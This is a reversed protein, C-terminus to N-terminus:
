NGMTDVSTMRRIELEEYRKKFLLMNAGFVFTLIFGPLLLVYWVFFPQKLAIAALGTIILLIGLVIFIKATTLVFRRAKGFGGLCGLLGGFCGIVSGGIGGIIGAQKAPWWSHSAVKNTFNSDAIGNIANKTKPTQSDQAAVSLVLWLLLSMVVLKKM